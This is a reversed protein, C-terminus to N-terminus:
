PREHDSIILYFWGAFILGVFIWAVLNVANGGANGVRCRRCRNGGRDRNFDM